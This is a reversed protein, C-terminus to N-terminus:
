QRTLLTVLDYSGNSSPAIRIGFQFTGSGDARPFTGIIDEIGGKLTNTVPRGALDQMYNRWLDPNGGADITRLSNKGTGFMHKNLHASTLGWNPDAANPKFNIARTGSGGPVINFGTKAAVDGRDLSPLEAGSRRVRERTTGSVQAVHVLKAPDDYATAAHPTPVDPRASAGGAWRDAAYHSIGSAYAAPPGREGTSGAVPSSAHHVNGADILAVNLHRPAAAGATAPMGMGLWAVLSAIVFVLLRKV